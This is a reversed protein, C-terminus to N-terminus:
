AAAPQPTAATERTATISDRVESASELDAAYRDCESERIVYKGGPTHQRAKLDGSYIRQRVGSPSLGLLEGAETVSLWKDTSRM